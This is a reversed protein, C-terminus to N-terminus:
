NATMINGFQWVASMHPEERLTERRPRFNAVPPWFEQVPRGSLTCVARPRRQERTMEVGSLLCLLEQQNSIRDPIFKRLRSPWFVESFLNSSPYTFCAPPRPYPLLSLFTTYFIPDRAKSLPRPHRYHVIRHDPPALMLMM